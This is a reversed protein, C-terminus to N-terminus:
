ANETPQHVWELKVSAPRLRQWGETHVSFTAATGPSFEEFVLGVRASQAALYEAAAALAPNHAVVLVHKASPDATEAIISFIEEYRCEYLDPLLVLQREEHAGALLNRATEAARLADSSILCDPFLESRALRGGLTQAWARGADTLPREHDTVGPPALGAEAHRMLTLYRVASQMNAM